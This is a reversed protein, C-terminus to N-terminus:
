ITPEEEDDEGLVAVVKVKVRFEALMGTLLAEIVSLATRDGYPLLVSPFELDCAYKVTEM